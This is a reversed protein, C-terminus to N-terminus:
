EIIKQETRNQEMLNNKQGEVKGGAKTFGRTKATPLCVTLSFFVHSCKSLSPFSPLHIVGNSMVHHHITIITRVTCMCVFCFCVFVFSRPLSLSPFPSSLFPPATGAKQNEKKRQPSFLLSSVNANMCASSFSLSLSRKTRQQHQQPRTNTNARTNPQENVWRDGKKRSLPFFHSQNFLIISRILM